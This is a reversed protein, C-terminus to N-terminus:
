KIETTGVVKIRTIVEGSDCVEITVALLVLGHPLGLNSGQAQITGDFVAIKSNTDLASMPLYFLAITIGSMVNDARGIVFKGSQVAASIEEYTVDTLFTLTQADFTGDVYFIEEVAAGGGGNQPVTRATSAMNASNQVEPMTAGMDSLVSYTSAVNGKIRNIEDQISM